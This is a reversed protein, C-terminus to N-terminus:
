GVHVSLASITNNVDFAIIDMGVVIRSVHTPYPIGVAVTPHSFPLVMRVLVECTCTGEDNPNTYM